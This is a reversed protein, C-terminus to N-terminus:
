AFLIHKNDGQDNSAVRPTGTGIGFIVYLAKNLQYRAEASEQRALDITAFIAVIVAQEVATLDRFRRASIVADEAQVRWRRSTGGESWMEIADLLRQRVEDVEVGELKQALDKLSNTTLSTM